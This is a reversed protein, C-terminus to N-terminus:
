TFKHFSYVSHIMLAVADVSVDEVRCQLHTSWTGLATSRTICWQGPQLPSDSPADLVECVAENGGVAPLQAPRAPYIGEIQNVDSPNIPAALVRVTLLKSSDGGGSNHGASWNSSQPRLPYKRLLRLVQKPSGYEGFVWAARHNM